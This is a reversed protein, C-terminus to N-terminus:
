DVHHGAGVLGLADRDLGGQEALVLDPDGGGVVALHEHGAHAVRVVDLHDAGADEHVALAPAQELLLAVGDHDDRLRQGPEADEAEDEHHDVHHQFRVLVDDAARRGGYGVGGAVAVGLGRRGRRGHVARVLDSSFARPAHGQGYVANM